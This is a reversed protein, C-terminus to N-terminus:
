GRRATYFDKIYFPECYAADAFDKALYKEHAVIGLHQTTYEVGAFQANHHHCIEKWKAAGSGFFIIAHTAIEEQFATADLVMAKPRMIETLENTFLATFVESRRADIMPCFLTGAYGERSTINKNKLLIAITLLKLSNEVILPIGLAYCIGKATAMAVRLGTYSGPGEVVAIADLANITYGNTTIIDKIACQIWAAHDTQKPNMTSFLEKGDAALGVRAVAGSTDINLILSMITM